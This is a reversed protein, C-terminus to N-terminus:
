DCPGDYLIKVKYEKGEYSTFDGNGDIIYTPEFHSDDLWGGNNFYIKILQEEEIQVQLTYTSEKGTKPNYYEVEACYKGDESIDVKKPIFAFILVMGIFVGYITFSEKKKAKM